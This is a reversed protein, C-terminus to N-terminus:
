LCANFSVRGRAAAVVNVGGDIKGLM